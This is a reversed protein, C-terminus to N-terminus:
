IKLWGKNPLKDVFNNMDDVNEFWQEIKSDDNMCIVIYPKYYIKENELYLNNPLNENFRWKDYLGIMEYIGEKRLTFGFVKKEKKYDWYYNIKKPRRHIVSINALNITAM